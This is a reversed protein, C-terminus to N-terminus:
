NSGGGELFIKIEKKSFCLFILKEMDSPNREAPPMKEVNPANKGCLPVKKVIPARKECNPASKGCTSPLNEVKMLPRKKWLHPSKEVFPSKKWLNPASKECFPLAYRGSKWFHFFRGKHFFRGLCFSLGRICSQALSKHMAVRLMQFGTKSMNQCCFRIEWRTLKNKWSSEM